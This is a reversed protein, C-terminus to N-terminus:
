YLSPRGSFYENNRPNLPVTPAQGQVVHLNNIATDYPFQWVPMNHKPQIIPIYVSQNAQQNEYSYPYPNIAIAACVRNAPIIATAKDSLTIAIPLVSGQLLPFSATCSISIADNDGVTTNEIKLKLNSSPLASKQLLDKVVVETQKNIDAEPPLNVACNAAQELVFGLKQKYTSTLGSDVVFVASGIVVPLMILLDATAM